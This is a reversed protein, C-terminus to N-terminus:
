VIVIHYVTFCCRDVTLVHLQIINGVHLVHETTYLTYTTHQIYVKRRDSYRINYKNLASYKHKYFSM